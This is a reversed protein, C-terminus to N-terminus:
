QVIECEGHAKVFENFITSLEDSYGYDSGIGIYLEKSSKEYFPVFNDKEMLSITQNYDFGLTEAFAAVDGIDYM